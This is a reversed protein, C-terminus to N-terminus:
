HAADGPTVQHVFVAAAGAAAHRGALRGVDVGLDPVGEVPTVGAPRTVEEVPEQREQVNLGQQRAYVLRHELSPADDSGVVQAAVGAVRQVGPIVLLQTRD